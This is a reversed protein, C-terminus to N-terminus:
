AKGIGRGAGSGDGWTGGPTLDVSSKHARHPARESRDAVERGRVPRRGDHGAGRCPCRGFGDLEILRPGGYDPRETAQVIEARFEAMPPLARGFEHHIAWWCHQIVADPGRPAEYLLCWAADSDVRGFLRFGSAARDAAGQEDSALYAAFSELRVAASTRWEIWHVTGRPGGDAFVIAGLEPRFENFEGGFADRTDYARDLASHRLVTAGRSHDWLDTTSGVQGCALAAVAGHIAAALFWCRCRRTPM